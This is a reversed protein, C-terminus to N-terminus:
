ANEIQIALRYLGEANLYEIGWGYEKAITAVAMSLCYLDEYTRSQWRSKALVILKAMLSPNFTENSVDALEESTAVDLVNRQIYTKYDIMKPLASSLKNRVNEATVSFEHLNAMDTRSNKEVIVAEM